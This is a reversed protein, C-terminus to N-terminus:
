FRLATEFRYNIGIASRHQFFQGNVCPAIGALALKSSLDRVKYDGHAPPWIWESIM